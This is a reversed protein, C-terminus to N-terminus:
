GATAGPSEKGVAPGAFLGRLFERTEPPFPAMLEDPPDWGAVVASRTLLDQMAATTVTKLPECPFGIRELEDVRADMMGFDADLFAQMAARLADDAARLEPGPRGLLAAQRGKAAFLDAMPEALANGFDRAIAQWARLRDGAVRAVWELRAAQDGLRCHPFFGGHPGRASELHGCTWVAHMPAHNLDMPIYQVPQYAPCGDFDAAFPRPYPCRESGSEM